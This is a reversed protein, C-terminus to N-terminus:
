SADEFKTKPDCVKTGPDAIVTPPCTIEAPVSPAIITLAGVGVCAGGPTTTIPPDLIVALGSEPNTIPDWVSKGPLAIVAFPSTMVKGLGEGVFGTTTTPSLVRVWSECDFRSMPECVSLGPLAIVTSPCIMERPVPLAMITLPAVPVGVVNEVAVADNGLDGIVLTTTAPRVSVAPPRMVTPPSIRLKAGEPVPM